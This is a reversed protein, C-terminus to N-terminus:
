MGGRALVVFAFVAFALLAASHLRTWRPEPTM